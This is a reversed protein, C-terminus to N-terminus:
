ILAGLIALAMELAPQHQVKDEEVKNKNYYDWFEAIVEKQVMTYGVVNGPKIMLHEKERTIGGKMNKGCFIVFPTTPIERKSLLLMSGAQTLEIPDPLPLQNLLPLPLRLPLPLPLPLSLPLHVPLLLAVPLPMPILGVLKGSILYLLFPSATSLLLYCAVTRRSNCDCFLSPSLYSISFLPLPAMKAMHTVYQWPLEAIATVAFVGDHVGKFPPLNLIRRAIAGHRRWIRYEFVNIAKNRAKQILWNELSTVNETTPSCQSQLGFWCTKDMSMIAIYAGSNRTGTSM